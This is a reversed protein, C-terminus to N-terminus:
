SVLTLCGAVTQKYKSNKNMGKTYAIYAINHEYAIM